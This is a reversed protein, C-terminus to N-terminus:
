PIGGVNSPSISVAAFRYVKINPSWHDPALRAKRKLHQLFEAPEPLAEWVAPLFLGRRNGEELILGDVGPRIQALLDAESTFPIEKPATLISISVELVNREDRQLAPFRPDSFAARFANEAVDEILPRMAQPSGICGRLKGGNKLTVFSAGDAQLEPAFEGVAIPLACGRALGHDISADAVALLTYGHHERLSADRGSAVVPSGPAPDQGSEASRDKLGPDEGGQTFLYAGYGVVRDKPGATDGSNRLDITACTMGRRRAVTLLGSIPVRGCAQERGIDQPRLREIAQTTAADMRQATEYDQYHSLDSSIVILTEAGGWVLELAEAVEEATAQGAVLPVISVEGLTEQLFPLHVELSHEGAHAEDLATVQPLELLREVAEGDVRMDGLPTAFADATSVALGRMAVRHAPGILVVRTITGRAARIRAYASAAIPGSYIYGAHPVIIAKPVPGEARVRALLAQVTRDLEARDGPYFQGAVAPPRVATMATEAEGRKIDRDKADDRRKPLAAAPGQLPVAWRKSSERAPRPGANVPVGHGGM